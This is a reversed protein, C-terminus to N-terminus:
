LKKEKRSDSYVRSHTRLNLPYRLDGDGTTNSSVEPTISPGIVAVRIKPINFGTLQDKEPHWTHTKVELPSGPLCTGKTTLGRGDRM